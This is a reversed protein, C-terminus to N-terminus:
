RYRSIPNFTKSLRRMDQPESWGDIQRAAQSLKDMYVQLNRMIGEEFQKLKAPQLGSLVTKRLIKHLDRDLVTATSWGGEWPVMTSYSPSKLFRSDYGYLAQFATLLKNSM